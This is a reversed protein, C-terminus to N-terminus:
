YMERLYIFEENGKFVGFTARGTNSPNVSAGNNGTLLHVPASASIDVSGTGGSSSLKYSLVGASVTGNGAAGSDM